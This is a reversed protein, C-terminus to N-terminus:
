GLGSVSSSSISRKVGDTKLWTVVTIHGPKNISTHTTSHTHWQVACTALLLSPLLGTLLYFVVSTSIVCDPSRWQESIGPTFHQLYHQSCATAGGASSLIQYLHSWTAKYIQCFMCANASMSICVLLCFLSRYVMCVYITTTHCYSLRYPSPSPPHDTWTWWLGTLRPATIIHCGWSDSM